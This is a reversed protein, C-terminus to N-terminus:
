KNDKKLNDEVNKEQTENFHYLIIDNLAEIVENLKCVIDM